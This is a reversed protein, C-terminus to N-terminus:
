TGPVYKSPVLYSTRTILSARKTREKNPITQMTCLHVFDPHQAQQAHSYIGLMHKKPLAISHSVLYSYTESESYITSQQLMVFSRYSDNFFLLYFAQTTRKHRRGQHGRSKRKTLKVFSHHGLTTTAATRYRGSYNHLCALRERGQGSTLLIM